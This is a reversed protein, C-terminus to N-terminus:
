VYTRQPSAIALAARDVSVAVSRQLFTVNVVLRYENEHSVVIGDLGRLPGQEIRVRDGEELCPWPQVPLGSAIMTKVREV